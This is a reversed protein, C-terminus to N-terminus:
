PWTWLITSPLYGLIATFHIGFCFLARSLGFFFQISLKLFAMRFFGIHLGTPLYSANSDLRRVVYFFTKFGIYIYNLGSRWTMLDAVWLNLSTLYKIMDNLWTKFYNAWTVWRAHLWTELVNIWPVWDNLWAEYDSLYNLQDSLWTEYDNRLPVQKKLWDLWKTVSENWETLLHKLSFSLGKFGSNFGM